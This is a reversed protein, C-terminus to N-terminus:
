IDPNGGEAPPDTDLFSLSLLPLTSFPPFTESARLEEDPPGTMELDPLTLLPLPVGGSDPREAAAAAAAAALAAAGQLMMDVGKLPSPPDRPPPPVTATAPPLGLALTDSDPVICLM